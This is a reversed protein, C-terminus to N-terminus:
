SIRNPRIIDMWRPRAGRLGGNLFATIPKELVEHAAVGAATGAVMAVGFVVPGPLSLVSGLKAVVSIAMTHWLYISYSADGLYSAPTFRPVATRREFTLVGLVLAAALPGLVLPMFGLYTAGVFAFGALAAAILATGVKPDPIAGDLWAKGLGIGLLFELLLPSTWAELVPTEPEVLWGVVVLGLFLAALFALRRKAPLFLAGAFLAYFFMEYNLTWGQVLVPWVDGTSPSHSPIFALSAFVYGATLRLNPFLGALAGLVMVGTAIWYLPVIRKIRDRLFAAPSPSRKSAIVWMIFGSIVFFVDVGAAGIAFHGGSREAAHFAVVGLAAAARLYQIGYLTRM